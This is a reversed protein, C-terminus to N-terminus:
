KHKWFSVSRMSVRLLRAVRPINLTQIWDPSHCFRSRMAVSLNGKIHLTVSQRGKHRRQM